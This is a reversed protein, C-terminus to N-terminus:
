SIIETPLLPTFCVGDKGFGRTEGLESVSRELEKQLVVKRKKEAENTVPLAFIWKQMVTWVNPTSKGPTIANIASVSPMIKAPSFSLSTETDSEEPTVTEGESVIPLLAHWEGLRRAVGRWVTERRLDEPTCVRGRIFSYM